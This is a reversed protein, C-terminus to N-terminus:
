SGVQREGLDGFEIARQSDTCRHGVARDIKATAGHAHGVDLTRQEEEGVCGTGLLDGGLEVCSDSDGDRVDGEGSRETHCDVGGVM